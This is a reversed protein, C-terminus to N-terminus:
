FNVIVKVFLRLIEFFHCLFQKINFSKKANIVIEGSDLYSQAKSPTGAFIIGIPVFRELFFKGQAVMPRKSAFQSMKKKKRSLSM